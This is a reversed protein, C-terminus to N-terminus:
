ALDIMSRVVRGIVSWGKEGPFITENSPNTSCPELRRVPRSRYRKYTTEGKLSFVYFGGDKLSRDATNFIILSGEPSVLNMSDGRVESAVYQGGSPLDSVVIKEAEPDIDGIDAVAGASVWAVKPVALYALGPDKQLERMEGTGDYLWEARVNLKAAYRKAAEFSFPQNGNLNSKFTDPNWHCRLATARASMGNGAFSSEQFAQRLRQSRADMHLGISHFM